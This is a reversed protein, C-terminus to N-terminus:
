IVTSEKNKDILDKNALKGMQRARHIVNWTTGATLAATLMIWTKGAHKMFGRANEPGTWLTKCAKGFTKGFTKTLNYTNKGTNKLKGGIKSVFSENSKSHYKPRDSFAKFFDAWCNQAAIGVGIGAWAYSSLSKATKTSSVISRIIPTTETVSDNLDDGMGLKRAIKDYYKKGYRPDKELLDKRFFEVSDYVKKHQHKHDINAEAGPKTPLTCFVDRYPLEIDVGTSWAVPRTVLDPSLTKGLGYLLVGLGMKKGNLSAKPTLHKNLLNFMTIFMASGAVYPIMGMSLFEYFDSNVDGMLGKYPYEILSNSARDLKQVVRSNLNNPMIRPKSDDDPKEGFTLAKLNNQNNSFRVDKIM